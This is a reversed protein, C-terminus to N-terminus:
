ARRTLHRYTEAAATRIQPAPTFPNPSTADTSNPSGIMGAVVFRANGDPRPTLAIVPAGAFSAPTGAVGPTGNPLHQFSIPRLVPRQHAPNRLQSPEYGYAAPEDALAPVQEAPQLLMGDTVEQTNWEWGKRRAHSELHFFPLLAVDINSDAPRSWQDAWHTFLLVECARDPYRAMHRPIGLEGVPGNVNSRCTILFTLVREDAGATTGPNLLHNFLFVTAGSPHEADPELPLIARELLRPAERQLIEVVADDRVPM